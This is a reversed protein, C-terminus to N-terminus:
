VVCLTWYGRYILKENYFQTHTHTRFIHQFSTISLILFYSFLTKDTQTHTHTFGSRDWTVGGGNIFHHGTRRGLVCGAGALHLTWRKGRSLTFSRTSLGALGHIAEKNANLWYHEVSMSVFRGDRQFWVWVCVGCVTYM